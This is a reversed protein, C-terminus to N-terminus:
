SRYRRNFLKENQGFAANLPTVPYGRDRAAIINDDSMLYDRVAVAAPDVSSAWPLRDTPNTGFTGELFVLKGVGGGGSRFTFTGQGALTNAAASSGNPTTLVGGSIFIRETTTETRKWLTYTSCLTAANFMQRVAAWLANAAVDLPVYNEIVSTIMEVDDAPTGTVPTGSVDCNVEFDHSLQQFLMPFLLTYPGPRNIPM